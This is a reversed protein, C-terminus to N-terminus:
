HFHLNKHKSLSLLNDRCKEIRRIIDKEGPLKSEDSFKSEYYNGGFKVDFTAQREPLTGFSATMNEGKNQQMILTMSFHKELVRRFYFIGQQLIAVSDIHINSNFQLGNVERLLTEADYQCNITGKNAWHRIAIIATAIAVIEVALDIDKLPM